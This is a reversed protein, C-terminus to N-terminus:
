KYALKYRYQIKNWNKYECIFVNGPSKGIKKNKNIISIQYSFDTTAGADRSFIVASYKGNSDFRILENNTVIGNSIIIIFVIFIVFCFSAISILLIKIIKNM